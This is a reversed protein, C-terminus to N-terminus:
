ELTSLIANLLNQNPFEEYLPQLAKQFAAFDVENVEMLGRLEEILRNDVAEGQARYEIGIEEAARRMGSQHEPSLQNWRISSIAVIQPNYVHRTLSLYKQVEYLKNSTIVQLPNEQGDFAGTQLATFVETFPLPAPNAGLQRFMEMRTISSPTRMKLGAVDEPVVIPHVNNTMHRFGNEWWGLTVIGEDELEQLVATVEPLKLSAVFQERTEYLYPLGFVEMDRVIPSFAEIAKTMDVTGILMGEVSERNNGQQGGPYVIVEVEENTYESVLDAFKEAMEVHYSGAPDEISFSLTTKASASLSCAGLGLLATTAVIAIRNRLM